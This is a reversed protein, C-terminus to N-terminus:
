ASYCHDKGDKKRNISRLFFILLIVSYNVNNSSLKESQSVPGRTATARIRPCGLDFYRNDAFALVQRGFVEFFISRSFGGFSIKV